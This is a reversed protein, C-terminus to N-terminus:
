IIKDLFSKGNAPGPVGLYECVTAGIDAFSERTGIFGPKVNVGFCLIPVYERSHDTSPTKPDCGHDATIIYLDGDRMDCLIDLLAEDFVSLAKAYGDIDNRHGYVMDFDVLNVFCLGNFDEGQLKNIWEIGEANSSTHIDRTIGRGSFINYIKGVGIVDQGHRSIMDLITDENPTLSFDKRNSTRYFEGEKGAFPRAIVRSVAHEGQLIERAILCMEYQKEIPYIDEHCALQFVSDASTYVIPCSTKIHEAGYDKIVETGSYPKNCLTKTGIAKEFREIVERPFGDPYVPFPNNTVVGAIEWHGVITDKGASKEGAKGYAAFPTKSELGCELGPINFLGASQLNPCSFNKSGTLSLITNSGEDGYKAADPLEGAGVSDLVILFVRRNNAMKILVKKLYLM